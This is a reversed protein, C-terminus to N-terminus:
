FPSDVAELNEWGNDTIAQVTRQYLDDAGMLCIVMNGKQAVLAGTPMVCVWKQWDLNALFDDRVAQVDTGEELTAIVLSYPTTMMVANCSTGVAIGDASSLGMMYAFADDKQVDGISFMDLEKIGTNELIQMLEDLAAADVEGMVVPTPIYVELEETVAQFCADLQAYADMYEQPIVGSFGTAVATGDNYEVYASGVSDGEGYENRGNLDVLGSQAVAEAIRELVSADMNTGIKKVDGVYEVYVTGDENPYAMLYRNDTGTLNLNVSFFTVNEASEPLTAGSNSVTTEDPAVFETTNDPVDTVETTDAPKSVACGALVFTLALLLAVIRNLTMTKM